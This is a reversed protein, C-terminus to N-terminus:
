QCKLDLVLIDPPFGSGYGTKGRLQPDVTLRDSREGPHQYRQQFPMRSYYGAISVLDRLSHLMAAYAARSVEVHFSRALHVELKMFDKNECRDLVEWRGFEFCMLNAM